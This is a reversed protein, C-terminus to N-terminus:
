NMNRRPSVKSGKKKMKKKGQEKLLATKISPLVIKSATPSRALISTRKIKSLNESLYKHNDFHDKTHDRGNMPKMGFIKAVIKLNDNEIRKLELKRVISNATIQAAPEANRASKFGM